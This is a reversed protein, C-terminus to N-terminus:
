RGRAAAALIRASTEISWGVTLSSGTGVRTAFSNAYALSVGLDNLLIEPALVGLKASIDPEKFSFIWAEADALGEQVDFAANMMAADARRLPHDYVVVQGTLAGIDKYDERTLRQKQAAKVGSQSYWTCILRAEELGIQWGNDPAAVMESVPFGIEQAMQNCDYRLAEAAHLDSLCLLVLTSTVCQIIFNKVTSSEILDPFILPCSLAAM